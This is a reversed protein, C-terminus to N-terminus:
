KLKEKLLTTKNKSGKPRGKRKKVKEKIEELMNSKILINPSSMEDVYKAGFVNDFFHKIIRVKKGKYLYIKGIEFDSIKM